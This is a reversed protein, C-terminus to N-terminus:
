KTARIMERKGPAGPLTELTFGISKLTRKVVGKACYTVINGGPALAEFVNQFANDDWLEPQTDPAFADFYFSHYTAKPLEFLTYDEKLKLLKFHDSLTVTQGWACTHLENFHEKPKDLREPYNLQAAIEPHVPYLELAHYEVPIKLREAELRTLYGNLGSGFGLEIIKIPGEPPVTNFWSQIGANMFVHTSETLAGNHSHYTENFEASVLSNSGDKTTIITPRSFFM